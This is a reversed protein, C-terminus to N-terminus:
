SLQQPARSSANGIWTMRQKMGVTQHMTWYYEPLNSDLSGCQEDKRRCSEVISWFIEQQIRAADELSAKSNKQKKRETPDKLSARSSTKKWSTTEGAADKLSAGFFKPQQEPWMKRRHELNKQQQMGIVDRLSARSSQWKVEEMEPADKLQSWFEKNNMGVVDKLSAGSKQSNKEKKWHKSKELIKCMGIIWIKDGDQSGRGVNDNRGINDYWKM